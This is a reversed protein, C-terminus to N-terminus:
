PPPRSSMLASLTDLLMSFTIASCKKKSGTPLIVYRVHIIGLSDGISSLTRFSAKSMPVLSQPDCGWPRGPADTCTRPTATRTSSQSLMRSRVETMSDINEFMEEEDGRDGVRSLARSPDIDLLIMLDPEPLLTKLGWHVMKSVRGDLYCSSLTYRVAIIDEGKRVKRGTSLMDLFLFVASSAKSVRGRGLLSRKALRGWRGDGPHERVTVSVGRSSLDDALARAVTSKGSGDLGDIALFM